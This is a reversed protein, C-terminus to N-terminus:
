KKAADLELYLNEITNKQSDFKQSIAENENQFKALKMKLLSESSQLSKYGDDMKNKYNELVEIENGMELGIKISKQTLEIFEREFCDKQIKLNQNQSLLKGNAIKLSELQIKEDEGSKELKESLDKITKHNSNIKEECELKESQLHSNQKVLKSHENKWHEVMERLSACDKQADELKTNLNHVASAQPLKSLYIETKIKSELAEKAKNKALLSLKREKKLEQQTNFLDQTLNENEIALQRIQANVKCILPDANQDILFSEQAADKFIEPTSLISMDTQNLLSNALTRNITSNPSKFNDSPIKQNFSNDKNEEASPQTHEIMM